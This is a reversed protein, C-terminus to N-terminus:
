PAGGITATNPGPGVPECIATPSDLAYTGPTVCTSTGVVTGPIDPGTSFGGTLAFIGASYKGNSSNCGISGGWGNDPTAPGVWSCEPYGFAKHTVTYTGNSTPCDESTHSIVLSYTSPCQSCDQCPANCKECTHYKSGADARKPGGAGTESGTHVAVLRCVGDIDFTFGIEPEWEPDDTFLGPQTPSDCDILEYVEGADCCECVFRHEAM